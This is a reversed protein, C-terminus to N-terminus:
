RDDGEDHEPVRTVEDSGCEACEVVGDDAHVLPSLLCKAGGLVRAANDWKAKTTLGTEREICKDLLNQLAALARSAAQAEEKLYERTERDLKLANIGVLAREANRLIAAAEYFKNLRKM